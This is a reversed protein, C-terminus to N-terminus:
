CGTNDTPSHVVCDCVYSLPSRVCRHVQLTHARARCTKFIDASIKEQYLVRLAASDHWNFTLNPSPLSNEFYNRQM